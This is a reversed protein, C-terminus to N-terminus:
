ISTTPEFNPDIPVYFPQNAGWRTINSCPKGTYYDNFTYDKDDDTCATTVAIGKNHYDAHYDYTVMM